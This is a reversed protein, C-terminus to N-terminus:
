PNERCTTRELEDIPLPKPYSGFFTGVFHGSIILIDCKVKNELCVDNNFNVFRLSSIKFLESDPSPLLERFEFDSAPLYKKFVEVEDSSNFTMSCVVKKAAFASFSMLLLSLIFIFSKM